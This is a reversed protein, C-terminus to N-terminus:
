ELMFASEIYTKLTLRYGCYIIPQSLMIPPCQETALSKQALRQGTVLAVDFRCSLEALHPYDTLFLQATKWLKSQKASTISLLGDLDWNGSSRTKVEVFALVPHRNELASNRTVIDLEGWRCSWGRSIITWGQQELWRAVLAEGHKGLSSARSKQSSSETPQTV